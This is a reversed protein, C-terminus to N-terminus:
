TYLMILLSKLLLQYYKRGNFVFSWCTCLWMDLPTSNSRIWSRKEGRFWSMSDMMSRWVDQRFCSSSDANEGLTSSFDAQVSWVGSGPSKTRCCPRSPHVGHADPHARTRVLLVTDRLASLKDQRPKWHIQYWNIIMSLYRPQNYHFTLNYVAHFIAARRWSWPIVIKMM